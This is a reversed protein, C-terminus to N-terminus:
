RKINKTTEENNNLLLMGLDYNAKDPSTILEFLQDRNEHNKLKEFEKRQLGRCFTQPGKDFVSFYYTHDNTETHVTDILLHLENRTSQFKYLEVKESTCEELTKWFDKVYLYMGEQYYHDNFDKQIEKKSDWLSDRYMRNLFTRTFYYPYNNRILSKRTNELKSLENQINAVELWREEVYDSIEKFKKFDEEM